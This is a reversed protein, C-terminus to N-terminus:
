SRSLVEVESPFEAPIHFLYVTFNIRINEVVVVKTFTELGFRKDLKAQVNPQVAKHPHKGLVHGDRKERALHLEV